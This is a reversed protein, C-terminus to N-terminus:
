GEDGEGETEHALELLSFVINLGPAAEATYVSSASTIADGIIKGINLGKSIRLAGPQVDDIFDGLARTVSGTPLGKKHLEELVRKERDALAKNLSVPKKFAQWISDIVEEWTVNRGPWFTRWGNMRAIVGKRDTNLIERAEGAPDGAAAKAFSFDLHKRYGERLEPSAGVLLEFPREWGSPASFKNSMIRGLKSAPKLKAVYARTPDIKQSHIGFNGGPGVGPDPSHRTLM